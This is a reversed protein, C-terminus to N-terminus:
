SVMVRVVRPNWIIIMAILLKSATTNNKAEYTHVPSRMSGLCVSSFYNIYGPNDLQKPDIMIRNLPLLDESVVVVGVCENAVATM